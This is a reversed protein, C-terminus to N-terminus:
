VGHLTRTHVKFMGSESQTVAKMPALDETKKLGAQRTIEM